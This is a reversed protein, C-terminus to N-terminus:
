RMKNGKVDYHYIEGGLTAKCISNNFLTIRNYRVPVIIRKYRISYVGKLHGIEILLHEKDLSTISSYISRLLVKKENACFVGVKVHKAIRFLNYGLESHEEVYDANINYIINRYWKRLLNFFPFVPLIYSFTFLTDTVAFGLSAGVSEFLSNELSICYWVATVVVITFLLVYDFLGTFKILVVSRPLFSINSFFNLTFADPKKDTTFLKKLMICTAFYLDRVFALFKVGLLKFVSHNMQLRTGCKRCFNANVPNETHCKPNPCVLGNM